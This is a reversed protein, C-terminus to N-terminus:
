PKGGHLPCPTPGGCPFGDLDTVDCRTTEPTMDHRPEEPQPAPQSAQLARRAVGAADWINEGHMGMTAICHLRAELERVRLEAATQRDLAEEIGRRFVAATDTNQTDALRQELDRVRQSLRESTTKSVDAVTEKKRTEHALLEKLREVEARAEDREIMFREDNEAKARKYADREKEAVDLKDTADNREGEVRALQELLWVCLDAHDPWTLEVGTAERWRKIARMDANWRLDFSQKQEEVEARLEGIVATASNEADDYERQLEDREKKVDACKCGAPEEGSWPSLPHDPCHEALVRELGDVWRCAIKFLRQQEDREKEAAEARRIAEAHQKELHAVVEYLDVRGAAEKVRLPLLAEEVVPRVLAVWKDKLDDRCLLLDDANTIKEVIERAIEESSM